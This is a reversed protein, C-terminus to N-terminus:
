ISDSILSYNENTSCTEEDIINDTSTFDIQHSPSQGAVSIPSKSVDKLTRGPATLTIVEPLVPEIKGGSISTTYGRSSMSYVNEITVRKDNDDGDDIELLEENNTTFTNNSCSNIKNNDIRTTLTSPIINRGGIISTAMGASAIIAAGPIASAEELDKELRDTQDQDRSKLEIFQKAIREKPTISLGDQINGSSKQSKTKKRKFISKFKKMLWRLFSATAVFICLFFLTEPVIEYSEMFAPTKRSLIVVTAICLLSAAFLMLLLETVLQSLKFCLEKDEIIIADKNEKTEENEGAELDRTQGKINTQASDHSVGLEQVDSPTNSNIREITQVLQTLRGVTHNDRAKREISVYNKKQNKVM